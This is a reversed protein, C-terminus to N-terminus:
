SVCPSRKKYHSNFRSTILLFSNTKKKKEKYIYSFFIFYQNKVSYKKISTRRAGCECLCIFVRHTFIKKM